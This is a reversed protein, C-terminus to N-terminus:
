RSNREPGIRRWIARGPYDVGGSLGFSIGDAASGIRAAEPDDACYVVADTSAACLGPFLGGHSGESRFAGHPRIRHEHDRRNGPHYHALTGDSEDAEIVLWESRGVGAPAGDPPLEGGICWSADVGCVRFIHAIMASTTTKGHTGSVAMTKWQEALVPLVQGRRFLPLGRQKLRWGSPIGRNCRPVTSRGIWARWIRLM